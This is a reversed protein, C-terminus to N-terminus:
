SSPDTPPAACAPWSATCAACLELKIDEDDTVARARVRGCNGCSAAFARWLANDVRDISMNCGELEALHHEIARYRAWLFVLDRAAQANGDPGLDDLSQLAAIGDRVNDLLERAAFVNDPLQASTSIALSGDSLRRIDILSPM